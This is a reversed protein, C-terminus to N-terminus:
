LLGTEELEALASEYAEAAEAHAGALLAIAAAYTSRHTELPKLAAKARQEQRRREQANDQLWMRCLELNTM